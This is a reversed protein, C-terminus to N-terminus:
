KDINGGNIRMDMNMLRNTFIEHTNALWEFSSIASALVDAEHKSITGDLKKEALKAKLHLAVAPRYGVREHYDRELLRGNDTSIGLRCYLYDAIESLTKDECIRKAEQVNMKSWRDLVITSRQMTTMPKGGRRLRDQDRKFCEELVSMDIHNYDADLFERKGGPKSKFLANRMNKLDHTSCHFLYIYRSTDFPNVTRVDDEEVWATNPFGTGSRRLLNMLRANNGGADCVLGLVKSGVLECNMVVRTFQELLANGSLSGGNYFFECNFTRGTVSRYQWQNVHTAPEVMDNPKDEDLWNKIIKKQSTFDDTLGVVAGSKVNIIVDKKLKMEDVILQGIEEPEDRLKLQNEYQSISKGDKTDQAYKLSKLYSSSPYIMISDRRFQEYAAPGSQLYLSMALGVLSSSYRCQSKQKNFVRCQNKIEDIITEIIPMCDEEKLSVSGGLSRNEKEILEMLVKSVEDHVLGPNENAYDLSNQVNTRIGPSMTKLLKDKTKISKLARKLRISQIDRQRKLAAGRIKLEEKTLDTLPTTSDAATREAMNEERKRQLQKEKAKALQCERCYPSRNSVMRCVRHSNCSQSQCLTFVMNTKGDKHVYEVSTKKKLRMLGALETLAADSSVDEAKVEGLRKIVDKKIDAISPTISKRKNATAPTVAAPKATAPPKKDIKKPRGGRNTPKDALQKCTIIVKEDLARKINSPTAPLGTYKEFLAKNEKACCTDGSKRFSPQDLDDTLNSCMSTWELLKLTWQADGLCVTGPPSIYVFWHRNYPEPAKVDHGREFHLHSPCAQNKYTRMQSPTAQLYEKADQILM